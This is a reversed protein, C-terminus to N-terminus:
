AAWRLMAGILRKVKPTYPPYMLPLASFHTQAVARAHSFARFGHIGHTSGMGSNNVGGFPLHPHLVQIVTNNVCAGGSSTRDLIERIRKPSKGWIYLALPKERSNISTIVDEIHKYRIIPLLPGFIEEKLIQADAPVNELLTPAVYRREADIVGGCAVTAGLEEADNLLNIVRQTHRENVICALDTPIESNFNGYREKLLSRASAVFQDAISEHVYVHDPAVCTQGNNMFKSWCVNAAAANVNSDAEVITPSKGGLELTVSTLNKAAAAMVVKGLAPSGTFFIHDFPLELLARATEAEGQFLAVEESPFTEDIIRQMEAALHPTMESPKIIATNGASLALILPCFSLNVPYNWPAIILCRGRPQYETRAGTGLTLLSMAARSPRMWKKLQRIAINAESIVTFLETLNVEAQPKNFDAAAAKRIRPAAAEVADRLRRIREIREKATSQRWRLSTSLQSDFCHQYRSSANAAHATDIPVTRMKKAATM